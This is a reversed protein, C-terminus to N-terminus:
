KYYKTQEILDNIEQVAAMKELGKEDLDDLKSIELLLGDLKVLINENMDVLGRVYEIHEQYIRMQTDVSKSVVGAGGRSRAEEVKESLKQYDKYDFIIMRNIMKKINNYFIAQVGNIASDFRTFTIEQPVFFQALISDLARDKDQMRELQEAAAAIEEEFVGRGKRANLAELYEQPKMQEDGKLLQVTPEPTKEEAFLLTYNGYGFILVSMVVVTVALATQLAGGGFSLGVLGESFLIINLLVIGLNLCVLKLVRHKM